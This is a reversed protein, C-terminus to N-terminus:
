ESVTQVQPPFGRKKKFKRAQAAEKVQQEKLVKQFAAQNVQGGVKVQSMDLVKESKESQKQNKM